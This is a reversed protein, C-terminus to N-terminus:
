EMRVALINKSQVKIEIGLPPRLDSGQVIGGRVFVNGALDSM